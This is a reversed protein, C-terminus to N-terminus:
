MGMLSGSARLALRDINPTPIDRNGYCGVDGWGLDDAIIFLINPRSAALARQSLALGAATLLTRRTM